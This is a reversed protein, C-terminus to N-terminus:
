PNVQRRPTVFVHQAVLVPRNPEWLAEAAAPLDFAVKQEVQELPGIHLTGTVQVIDTLSIMDDVDRSVVRPLDTRSVVLLRRDDMFAPGGLAFARPTWVDSVEGSITISKGVYAAPDDLVEGLTAGVGVPETAPYAPSDHPTPDLDQEGSPACGVFLALMATAALLCTPKMQLQKMQVVNEGRAM